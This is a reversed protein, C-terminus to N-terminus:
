GLDGGSRFYGCATRRAHRHGHKKEVRSAGRGCACAAAAELAEVPWPGGEDQGIQCRGDALISVAVGLWNAQMTAPNSTPWAISENSVEGEATVDILKEM